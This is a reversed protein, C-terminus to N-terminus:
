CIKKRFKALFFRIKEGLFRIKLMFINILYGFNRKFLYGACKQFNLSWSNRSNKFTSVTAYGCTTRASYEISRLMDEGVELLYPDGTARYLYMVSEILEPRLPYNERNAGAESNPINYFEPLFGYQKWVTHYNHLTKMAATTHGFISLLGPWYAELSQFVPLTVQGKNMSVWVHWDDRKLYKDISKRGENFMQMLEPRNLM